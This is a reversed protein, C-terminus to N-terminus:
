ALTHGTELLQNILRQTNRETRARAINETGPLSHNETDAQRKPQSVAM